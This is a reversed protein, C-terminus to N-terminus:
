GPLNMLFRRHQVFGEAGFPKTLIEAHQNRSETYKIAIVRHKVLERISHYWGDIHKTRGGSILNEAMTVAGQNDEFLDIIRGVLQPRLFASMARTFLATKVGQAMAVHEAESTSITVCDQTTTSSAIVATGGLMVSVGSM